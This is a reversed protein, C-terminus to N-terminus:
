SKINDAIVFFKVPWNNDMIHSADLEKTTMWNKPPSETGYDM